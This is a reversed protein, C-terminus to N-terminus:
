SDLQRPSVTTQLHIVNGSVGIAKASVGVAITIRSQLRDDSLNGLLAFKLYEIKANGGTIKSFKTGNSNTVGKEITGTGDTALRYNVREGKANNFVLENPLCDTINPLCFNSGTRIERAMQELALSVNSDAALLASIQRQTRLANIFGGTAISAVVSFIGIAVLLDVLTFGMLLRARTCARGPPATPRAVELPIFGSQATFRLPSGFLRLRQFWSKKNRTELKM